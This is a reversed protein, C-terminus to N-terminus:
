GLLRSPSGSVPGPPGGGRGALGGDDDGAGPSVHPGRACRGGSFREKRVPFGGWVTWRGRPVRGLSGFCSPYSRALESARAWTQRSSRRACRARHTARDMGARDNGRSRGRSRAAWRGERGTFPTSERGRRARCLGKGVGDGGVSMSIGPLVALSPRRARGGWVCRGTSARGGFGERAGGAGRGRTALV